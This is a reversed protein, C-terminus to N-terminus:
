VKLPHDSLTFHVSCNTMKFKVKSFIQFLPVSYPYSPSRSPSCCTVKRLVVEVSGGKVARLRYKLKLGYEVATRKLDM